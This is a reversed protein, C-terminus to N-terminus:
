DLPVALFRQAAELDCEGAAPELDPRYNWRASGTVPERLYDPDQLEFEYLLATRDESLTLREAIHKQPGSPVGVVLGGSHESFLATDMVLTDGDWRGISHGQPTREGNPPHGRGDTYIIRDVNMWDSHMVVRDALLELETHVMYVMIVPSSVSICNAQPNQTGDYASLYQQGLETLSWSSVSGLYKYFDERRPLWVGSLSEAVQQSAPTGSTIFEPNPFYETGDQKTIKRGLVAGRAPNRSPNAEVLVRDGVSFAEASWGIPKLIATGDGEVQVEIPSDNEFVTRVHVFVHPNKWEFRTVTAEFSIVEDLQFPSNSHHAHVPFSQLMSWFACCVLAAPSKMYKKM